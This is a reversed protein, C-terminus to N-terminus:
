LGESDGAPSQSLSLPTTTKPAEDPKPDSNKRTVVDATVTDKKTPSLPDDAKGAVVRSSLFTPMAGVSVASSRVASCVASIRVSGRVSSAIDAHSREALGDNKVQVCYFSDKSYFSYGNNESIGLLATEGLKIIREIIGPDATITNFCFLVKNDVGFTVEYAAPISYGSLAASPLEAFECLELFAKGTGFSMEKYLKSAEIKDKFDGLANLLPADRGDTACSSQLREIQVDTMAVMFITAARKSAFGLGPIEDICCAANLGIVSVFRSNFRGQIMEKSDLINQVFHDKDNGYKIYKGKVDDKIFDSIVTDFKPSTYELDMICHTKTDRLLLLKGNHLRKYLEAPYRKHDISRTSPFTSDSICIIPVLKAGAPIEVTNKITNLEIPAAM